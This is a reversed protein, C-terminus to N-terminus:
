NVCLNQFSDLDFETIKNPLLNRPAAGLAKSFQLVPWPWDALNPIRRIYKRRVVIKLCALLVAGAVKSFQGPGIECTEFLKWCNLFKQRSVAYFMNIRYLILHM